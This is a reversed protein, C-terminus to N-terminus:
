NTYNKDMQEWTWEDGERKSIDATLDIWYIRFESVANELKLIDMRINQQTKMKWLFDLSLKMEECVIHM